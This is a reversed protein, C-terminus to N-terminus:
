AGVQPARLLRVANIQWGDDTPLMQYDLAHFAGAGDRLLVKQWVAGDISRLELFQVDSPRYVMPYGQQVMAAFREVSGFITKIGPSAFEYAGDFDDALFADIQGQIVSEIAPDPAVETQARLPAALSLSMLVALILRTM